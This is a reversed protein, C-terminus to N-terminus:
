SGKYTLIAGSSLKVTGTIVSIANVRGYGRLIDGVNVTVTRGNTQELWARGPIIARVYWKPAQYVPQTARRVIKPQRKVKMSAISMQQSQLQASVDRLAQNMSQMSQDLSQVSESLSSLQNSVQQIQRTHDAETEQMQSLQRQVQETRVPQDSIQATPPIAPQPTITSL